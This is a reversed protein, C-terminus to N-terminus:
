RTFVTSVSIGNPTGITVTNTTPQGIQTDLGITVTMQEGPNLIDPEFLDGVDESWQDFIPVGDVYSLWRIVDSGGTSDYKVIVDWEEFDALKTDGENSLTVQVSDADLTEASLASIQTRAREGWREEMERWSQVVVDQSSLYSHTFTLAAFMAIAILIVSAVATDM